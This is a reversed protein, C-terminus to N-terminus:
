DQDRWSDDGYTSLLPGSLTSRPPAAKTASASLAAQAAVGFALVYEGSGALTVTEQDRGSRPALVVGWELLEACMRVAARTAVERSPSAGTASLLARRTVDIAVSPELAVAGEVGFVPEGGAVRFASMLAEPEVVPSDEHTRWRFWTSVSRYGMVLVQEVHQM